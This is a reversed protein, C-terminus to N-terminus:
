AEGFRKLAARLTDVIAEQEAASLALDRATRRLGSWRLYVPWGAHRAAQNFQERVRQGWLLGYRDRFLLWERDFAMWGKGRDRMGWWGVWCALPIARYGSTRM